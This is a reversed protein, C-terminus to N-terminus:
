KMKVEISSLFVKLILYLYYLALLVIAFIIIYTSASNIISLNIGILSSFFPILSLTGALLLLNSVLKIVNSSDLMNFVSVLLLSISFLFLGVLPSIFLSLFVLIISAFTLIAYETKVM